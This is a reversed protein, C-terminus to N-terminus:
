ETVKRRPIQYPKFHSCDEGTDRAYYANGTTLEPYDCLAIYAEKRNVAAWHQCDGCLVMV